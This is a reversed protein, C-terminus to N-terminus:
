GETPGVSKCAAFSVKPLEEVAGEKRRGSHGVEGEELVRNRTHLEMKM